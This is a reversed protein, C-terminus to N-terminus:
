NSGWPRQPRISSGSSSGGRWREEHVTGRGAACGEWDSSKWQCTHRDVKEGSFLLNQHAAGWEGEPLPQPLLGFIRKFLYVLTLSTAFLGAMMLGVPVLLVGLEFFRGVGNEFQKWFLITLLAGLSLYPGYPIMRNRSFPLSLVVATLACIPAIFFAILTAQWGLFAGVMAMLYIDGDGMAEERLFLFGARRILWVIGGGVLMGALSTSLGHLYPHATIWAPVAPGAMFPHLWEPTVIGFTNLLGQQQFWVPVIGLVPVCTSVVVAFVTAPTTTAEPIIRLDWDILSAVLLAEILVAHFAFRLWVLAEPSISGLGPFNQPGLKSYISSEDLGVGLGSPVEFWFLLLLLSGNLLEVIPYRCSIWMQCSRCRGRLKLWGFIPINDYWKIHTQCRPCHSPKNSLSSLQGWLRNYLPIRYVCVNLFSGIVAGIIFIYVSLIWFPLDMQLTMM